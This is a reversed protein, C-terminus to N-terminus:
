LIHRGAVENAGKEHLLRKDRCWMDPLTAAHSYTLLGHQMDTSTDNCSLCLSVVGMNRARKLRSTIVFVQQHGRTVSGLHGILLDGALMDVQIM